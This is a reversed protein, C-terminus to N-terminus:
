NQLDYKRLLLFLKGSLTFTNEGSVFLPIQRKEATELLEKEPVVGGTIIIASLDKAAAVGLINKHKQITIWLAGPQAHALVDSLLDGTYGSEVSLKEIDVATVKKLALELAIKNLEM